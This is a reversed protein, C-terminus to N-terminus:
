TCNCKGRLKLYLEPDKKSLNVPRGDSNTFAHVTFGRALEEGSNKNYLTYEITIKVPSLEKVEAKIMILDDYGAPRRYRCYVEAVPLFVGREELSKYPVGIERFLETRGVEMWVLYNAYYAVGMQDTEQYRVRLEATGHL